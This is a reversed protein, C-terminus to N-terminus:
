QLAWAVKAQLWQREETALSREELKLAIRRDFLSGDPGVLTQYGFYEDWSGRDQLTEDRTLEARKTKLREHRLDISKAWNEVWPVTRKILSWLEAEGSEHRVCISDGRYFLTICLEGEDGFMGYITFDKFRRKFQSVALPFYLRDPQGKIVVKKSIWTGIEDNFQPCTSALPHLITQCTSLTLPTDSEKFEVDPKIEIVHPTYLIYHYIRWRIELPLSSLHDRITPNAMVAQTTIVGEAATPNSLSM